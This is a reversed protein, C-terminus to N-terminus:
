LGVRLLAERNDDWCRRASHHSPLELTITPIGREVGAWTGFSGPTPYGITSTVPYKNYHALRRALERGPGDFNNCFRNRNISHITVILDPRFKEIVRIVARTEPESAPEFGGFMRSRPNGVEWNKTPFNRNIDVKRANRRTRRKYGDPNVVPMIVWTAIREANGVQGTAENGQQREANGRQREHLEEILREVVYVSKPEDGHFGGLVVICREHAPRKEGRFGQVRSGKFEHVVLERGELSKGMVHKTVQNM